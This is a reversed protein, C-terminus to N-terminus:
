VTEKTIHYHIETGFYSPSRYADAQIRMERISQEILDDIIPKAAKEFHDRLKARLHDTLAEVLVGETVSM